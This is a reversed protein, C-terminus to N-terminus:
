VTVATPTEGLLSGTITVQGHNFLMRIELSRLLRCPSRFCRAACALRQEHLLHVPHNNCLLLPPLLPLLPLILMLLIMLGHLLHLLHMRMLHMRMWSQFLIWLCCLQQLCLHLCLAIVLKVVLMVLLLLQSNIQPV